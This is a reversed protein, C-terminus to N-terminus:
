PAGHPGIVSASSAMCAGVLVDQFPHWAGDYRADFNRSVLATCARGATDDIPLFTWMVFGYYGPTDDSMVLSYGVYEDMLPDWGVNGMPVEIPSLPV